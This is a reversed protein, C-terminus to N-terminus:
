RRVLYFDVWYGVCSIVEIIEDSVNCAKTTVFLTLRLYKAVSQELREAM